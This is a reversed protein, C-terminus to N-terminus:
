IRYNSRVAECPLCGRFVRSSKLIQEFEILKLQQSNLVMFYVCQRIRSRIDSLKVTSVFYAMRSPVGSPQVADPETPDTSMYEDDILTPYPVNFSESIMTPRGYTMSQVRFNTLITGRASQPPGITALNM